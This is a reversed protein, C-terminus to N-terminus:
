PGGKREDGVSQAVSDDTQFFIGLTRLSRQPEM